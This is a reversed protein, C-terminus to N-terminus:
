RCARTSFTPAYWPSGGSTGTLARLGGDNTDWKVGAQVKREYAWADARFEGGCRQLHRQDAPPRCWPEHAMRIASASVGASCVTLKEIRTTESVTNPPGARAPVTLLVRPPIVAGIQSTCPDVM